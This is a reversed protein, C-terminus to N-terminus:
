GSDILHQSMTTQRGCEMKPHYRPWDREEMLCVRPDPRPFQCHLHDQSRPALVAFNGFRVITQKPTSGVREDWVPQSARGRGVWECVLTRHARCGEWVPKLSRSDHGQGPEARCM